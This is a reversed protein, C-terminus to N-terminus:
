SPLFLMFFVSPNQNKDSVWKRLTLVAKSILNRCAEVSIDMLGAVKKYDLEKTFRLYIAEKQRPTLENLAKLLMDAKQKSIEEMIMEHEISWTVDFPYEEMEDHIIKKETQIKRLLKRKFSKLLFFLINDTNGITKRNKILDTFLDQLADEILCVDSTFKLGYGYLKEAYRSYIFSIAWEEGKKFSHWIEYDTLRGSKTKKM